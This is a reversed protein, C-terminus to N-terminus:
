FGSRITGSVIVDNNLDTELWTAVEHRSNDINNYPVEWIINGSSDRKTLTIDGGPNYDWNATYVNESADLAISVGGPYNYWQLQPQAILNCSFLIFLLALFHFSINKRNFATFPKMVNNQDYM